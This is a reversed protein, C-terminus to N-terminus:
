ESLAEIQVGVRWGAYVPLRKPARIALRIGIPTHPLEPCVADMSVRKFGPMALRLFDFVARVTRSRKGHFGPGLQFIPQLPSDMLMSVATKIPYIM